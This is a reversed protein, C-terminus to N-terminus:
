VPSGDRSDDPRGAMDDGTNEATEEATAGIEREAAVKGASLAAKAVDGIRESVGKGEITLGADESALMAAEFAEAGVKRAAIGAHDVAKEADRLLSDRTKGFTADEFRTGPLMAGVAAGVAVGIAGLVLPERELADMVSRRGRQALDSVDEIAAYGRDTADHRMLRARDSVEDAAGRVREAAHGVADKAQEVLDSAKDAVGSAMDGVASATSSLSGGERDTGTETYSPYASSATRDRRHRL